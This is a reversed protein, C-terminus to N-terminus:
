AGGGANAASGGIYNNSITFGNGEPSNIDINLYTHTGTPTIATSQYFHNNTITWGTTNAATRVGYSTGGQRFINVFHNNSITNNSNMSGATGQSYISNMPRNGVTASATTITNNIIQNNSNGTGSTATSFFITGGATTARSSS